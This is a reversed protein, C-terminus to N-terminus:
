KFVLAYIRDQLGVPLMNMLRLPISQGISVIKPPHKLEVTRVIALALKRPHHAHKMEWKIYPMANSITRHYRPSETMIKEYADIAHQHLVTSYSGPRVTTVSIGQHTLERRLTTAYAELAHKAIAYPGTFPAPSFIGLESSVIIIKGKQQILMESLAKNVRATGIVQVQLLSLLMGLDIELLAGTRFLGALHVVADVNGSLAIDRVAEAVSEEDTVDMHCVTTGPTYCTRDKCVDCAFVTHGKEVLASCVANGLGGAAGTVVINM